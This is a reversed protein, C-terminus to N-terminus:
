CMDYNVTASYEYIPTRTTSYSSSTTTYLICRTFENRTPKVLYSATSSITSRFSLNPFLM